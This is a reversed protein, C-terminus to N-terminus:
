PGEGELLGREILVGVLHRRYEADAHMDGTPNVANRAAAVAAAIATPGLDTGVLADEADVLRQAVSGVGFAAIRALTCTGGASAWRLAIGGVPFVNGGNSVELLASRESPDQREFAVASVIEGPEICTTMDAVFFEHAAVRREGAASTLVLDAELALAVAPLEALPDCHALSGCVTGRNRTAPLGVHRLAKALLPCEAQVLPSTEADIQRVLAGVVLRDDSLRIYDLEGCRNISVVVEPRALRLNMLPVLSQGGALIRADEGHAAMAGVVEDLTEPAVFSFPAPKM